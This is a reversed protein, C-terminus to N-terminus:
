QGVDIGDLAKALHVCQCLFGLSNGLEIEVAPTRFELLQPLPFTRTQFEFVVLLPRGISVLVVQFVRAQTSGVVSYGMHCQLV